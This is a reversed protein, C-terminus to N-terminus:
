VQFPRPFVAKQWYEGEVGQQISIRAPELGARLVLIQEPM